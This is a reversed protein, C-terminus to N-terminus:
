SNGPVDCYTANCHEILLKWLSVGGLNGIKNDILMKNRKSYMVIIGIDNESWCLM